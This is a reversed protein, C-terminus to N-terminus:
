FRGIVKELEIHSKQHLEKVNQFLSFAAELRNDKIAEELEILRELLNAIGMFEVQPKLSHAHIRLHEWDKKALDKEMEAFSRPAIELYLQIYRQMKKPDEKTFKKLFTLDPTM